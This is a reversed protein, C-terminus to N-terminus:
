LSSEDQEAKAATRHTAVLADVEGQLRSAAAGLGGAGAPPAAAQPAPDAAAAAGTAARPAPEQPAQPAQAESARADGDPGKRKKKAREMVEEVKTRHEQLQAAINGYSEQVAQRLMNHLEIKAKDLIDHDSQELGLDQLDTGLSIELELKGDLVQQIDLVAGKAPARDVQPIFKRAKEIEEQEAAVVEETCKKLKDECRELEQKARVWQQKSNELAKRGRELRATAQQLEQGPQKPRPQEPKRLALVLGDAAKKTEPDAHSDAALQAALSQMQQLTGGGQASVNGPPAGRSPGGYPFVVDESSFKCGCECTWNKSKLRDQFLKKGCQSCQVMPRRKRNGWWGSEDLYIDQRAPPGRSLPPVDHWEPDEYDFGKGEGKGKGYKTWPNYVFKNHWPAHRQVVM